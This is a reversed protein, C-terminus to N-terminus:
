VDFLFVFDVTLNMAFFYENFEEWGLSFPMTIVTLLILLSVIIDWTAHFNSLPQSPTRAVHRVRGRFKRDEKSSSDTREQCRRRKRTVYM